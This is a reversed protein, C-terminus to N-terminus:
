FSVKSVADSNHPLIHTNKMLMARALRNILSFGGARLPSFVCLRMGFHPSGKIPTICIHAHTDRVRFGFFELRLTSDGKTKMHKM